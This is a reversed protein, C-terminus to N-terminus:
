QVTVAGHLRIDRSSAGVMVQFEGGLVSGLFLRVIIRGGSETEIRKKIDKLQAAWPTGDPAATGFNIAIPDQAAATGPLSATGALLATSALATLAFRRTPM